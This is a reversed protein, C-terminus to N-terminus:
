DVPCPRSVILKPTLLYFILTVRADLGPQPMM